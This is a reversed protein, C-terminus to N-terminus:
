KYNKFYEEITILELENPSIGIGNKDILINVNQNNNFKIINIEDESFHWCAVLATRRNPNKPKYIQIYDTYNIINYKLYEELDERLKVRNYSLIM